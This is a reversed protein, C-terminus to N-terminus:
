TLQLAFRVSTYPPLTIVDNAIHVSQCDYDTVFAMDDEGAEFEEAYTHHIIYM